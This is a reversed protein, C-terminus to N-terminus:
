TQNTQLLYDLIASFLVCSFEKRYDKSLLLAREEENSLFGCEVLVAPVAARDLVFIESGAKKIQRTNGNQLNERVANQIALALKESNANNGSYYVQAGRCGSQPFKNQHISIFVCDCDETLKLRNTLDQMKRSPKGDGYLMVDESRTLRCGIGSARCLAALHLAISLNIDKECVGGSSAGGDEGGHGPDIVVVPLSPPDKREADALRASTQMNERLVPSSCVVLVSVYIVAFCVTFAAFRFFLGFQFKENM